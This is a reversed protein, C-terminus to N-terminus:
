HRPRDGLGTDAGPPCEFPNDAADHCPASNNAATVMVGILVGIVVLFLFMGWLYQWDIRRQKM